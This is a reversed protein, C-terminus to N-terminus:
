HHPLRVLLFIVMGALVLVLVMLMGVAMKMLNRMSKVDEGLETLEFTNRETTEQSKAVTGEMRKLETTQETVAARLDRSALELTGMSQRLEAALTTTGHTSNGIEMARAMQPLFASIQLLARWVPNTEIERANPMGPDGLLPVEGFEQSREEFERDAMPRAPKEELALEILRDVASESANKMLSTKRDGSDVIAM